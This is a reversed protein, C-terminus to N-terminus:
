CWFGFCMKPIVETKGNAAGEVDGTRTLEKVASAGRVAKQIKLPFTAVKRRLFSPTVDKTRTSTQQPHHM